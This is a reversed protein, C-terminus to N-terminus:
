LDGEDQDSSRTSSLATAAKAVPNEGAYDSSRLGQAAVLEGTFSGIAVASKIRVPIRQRDATVWLQLKANKSKEFVGGVHSLDPEMLFTDYTDGNGLTIRERRVIHAKGIVWRKGDSVPKQITSNEKLELSRSYYFASLPDFTGVSIPLEKHIKGSKYYRAQNSDADFVVLVDKRVSGERQKKKYLMSGTMQVNAFGEIRDRVRYIRDILPTTRATLVFHYASVGNINTMPHVELVAKGAPIVTWKLEYTLREGPQFPLNADVKLSNCWGLVPLLVLIFLGFVAMRISRNRTPVVQGRASVVRGGVDRSRVDQSRVIRKRVIRKRVPVMQGMVNSVWRGGDM